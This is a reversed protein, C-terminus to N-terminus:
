KSVSTVSLRDGQMSGSLKVSMWKPNGSADTLDGKFQDSSIQQRVIQNSAEDLVILKGDSHIAFASSAPKVM